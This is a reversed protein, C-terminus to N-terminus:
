AADGRLSSVLKGGLDRALHRQVVIRVEPNASLYRELTEVEWRLARVPEIVVADVDSPTGSLLLASGVLNGAVLDGLVGEKRAVRVTGRVILSVGEPCKGREIMREGTEATIWSGVSLIQLVKRSPLDEFVLRRVEEEEPTLKVPRREMFLRWSQFLNIAAFVASWGIPVWLPTPQLVFYPIAILASVVAFLRLWLIDRVSYAVLLLVNAAHLFYNANFSNV